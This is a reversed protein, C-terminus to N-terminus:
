GARKMGALRERGRRKIDEADFGGEIPDGSALGEEIAARMRAVYAEQERRWNGLAQAVIEAESAYDGGAVARAIADATDGDITATIKRMEGM